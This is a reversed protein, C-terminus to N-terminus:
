CAPYHRQSAAGIHANAAPVSRRHRGADTKTFVPANSRRIPMRGVGTMGASAAISSEFSGETTMRIRPRGRTMSFISRAILTSCDNSVPNAHQHPQFLRFTTPRLTTRAFAPQFHDRCVHPHRLRTHHSFHLRSQRLTLGRHIARPLRICLWWGMPLLQDARPAPPMTTRVEATTTPSLSPPTRGTRVTASQM